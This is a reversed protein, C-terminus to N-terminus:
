ENYLICVTSGHICGMFVIKSQKKCFQLVDERLLTITKVTMEGFTHDEKVLRVFCTRSTQKHLGQYVVNREHSLLFAIFICKTALLNYILVCCFNM